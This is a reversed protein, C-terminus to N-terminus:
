NKGRFLFTITGIQSTKTSSNFQVEKAYELARSVLCQNNSNSSGNITAETVNGNQNVTISVVIKGGTECLYRPIDYDQMVRGKLSYTLTSKAKAHEAAVKQNEKRKNLKEQLSKYSQTEDSNLAYANNNAYSQSLDTEEQLDNTKAEELAKTTREFDNASVTKFNRVMDKYEQDENFAKNTSSGTLDEIKQLEEETLEPEPEILYYSETILDGQQKLQISFMALVVTGTTLFTIIAAKNQEIFKLFM